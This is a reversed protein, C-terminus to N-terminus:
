PKSDKSSYSCPILTLYHYYSQTFYLQSYHNTHCSTRYGVSRICLSQVMSWFATHSNYDCEFGLHCGTTSTSPSITFTRSRFCSGFSLCIALAVVWRGLWMLFVIDVDSGILDGAEPFYSPLNSKNTVVVGVICLWAAFANNTMM